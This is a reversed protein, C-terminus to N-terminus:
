RDGRIQMSPWPEATGEISPFNALDDAMAQAAAAVDEPFRNALQDLGAARAAALPDLKPTAASM